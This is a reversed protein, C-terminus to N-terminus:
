LFLLFFPNTLVATHHRQHEQYSQSGMGEEFPNRQSERRGHLSSQIYHKPQKEMFHRGRDGKSDRKRFGEAKLM